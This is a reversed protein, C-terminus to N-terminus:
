DSAGSENLKKLEGTSDFFKKTDEDSAIGGSSIDLRSDYKNVLLARFAPLHLTPAANARPSVAHATPTEVDLTPKAAM